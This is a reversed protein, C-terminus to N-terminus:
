SSSVLAAAVTGEVPRRRAQHSPKPPKLRTPLAAAITHHCCCVRMSKDVGGALTVGTAALSVAGLAWVVSVEPAEAALVWAEVM